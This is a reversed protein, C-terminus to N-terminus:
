VSIKLSFASTVNYEPPVETHHLLHSSMFSRPFACHCPSGTM